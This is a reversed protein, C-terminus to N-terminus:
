AKVGTTALPDLAARVLVDEMERVFEEIDDPPLYRTDAWVALFVAPDQQERVVPRRPANLDPGSDVQLYLTGDFTPQKRDWHLTTRPLAASLDEASALPAGPEPEADRRRDNVFCSIDIPEGRERSLRDLLARHSPPHYYGHLAAATVAKWARAVVEDFTTDAVEVVCLGVQSIQGVLDGFGPRFRNSVITLALSPHIATVRALAVAYAALLVHTTNTETRAAVSKLALYMAPSYCCLEWFRPECGEGPEGFRRAPAERLRKEWYRLSKDSTRLGAETSEIRALELPTLSRVPATGAGSDPDLHALDAVMADIGGGDMALHCYQVVMHTVTDAQRVVGMRVPWENPYDFAPAEFDVRLSEAAAAPDDGGDVDLVHLAVEGAAAVVQQPEPTFRLRTRLSQHRSVWFGLMRAVQEVSTGPPMPLAGGINLTRGTREITHWIGEQGWTLEGVGGGDEGQFPISIASRAVGM